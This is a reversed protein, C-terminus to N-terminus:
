ESRLAVAPNVRVARLAPVYASLLTFCVITAIVSFLLIPDFLSTEYLLVAMARSLPAALVIGIAIGVASITMSRLLVSRLVDHSTAGISRRIAFERRRREVAYASIAYLGTIALLLAIGGLTSFLVVNTRAAQEQAEFLSDYRTITPDPLTPDIRRLASALATAGVTGTNTEVIFISFEPDQNLALYLMPKNATGFDQRVNGVVGVITAIGNDDTASQAIRRGIIDTTGFYHRAFAEDVVAVAPAGTRDADRFVRGKILPINLTAFYDPTIPNYLVPTPAGAHGPIRVSTSDCCLFPIQLAASAHRVGPIASLADTVSHAYVSRAQNSKYRAAALKPANLVLVNDPNFGLGVHTLALFSHLVLAAALVLTMALAVEAAVLASRLYGMARGSSSRGLATLSIVLNRRRLLAPFVGAAFTTLAALGAAYLLVPGDIRVNSWRVFLASGISSIAYIGLWAIGLGAVAGAAALIATEIALEIGIRRGSAGLASRIALDAERAANRSLYMNAVNACAIVLVISVAAYLLWLLPRIPGVINDHVSTVTVTYFGPLNHPHTRTIDTLAGGLLASAVDIRTGAHIRAIGTYNFQSPATMKPDHSDIALWYSSRTILQYPTPDVFGAAAVGVIAYLRGDLHVTKGLVAPDGAFTTRWLEDSIVIGSHPAFDPSFFRGIQPHVGLVEFYNASVVGGFLSVAHTHGVFNRSNFQSLSLNSFPRAREALKHADPYSLSRGHSTEQVFVLQQAAPFPLPKFILGALMSAVVLNPGVALAIATISVTSFMPARLLSRTGRSVDRGFSEWRLTCGAVFLDMLTSASEIHPGSADRLGRRADSPWVLLGLDAILRKLGAFM